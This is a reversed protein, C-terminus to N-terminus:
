KVRLRRTLTTALMSETPGVVLLQLPAGDSSDLTSGLRFERFFVSNFSEAHQVVVRLATPRELRMSMAVLAGHLIGFRSFGSM